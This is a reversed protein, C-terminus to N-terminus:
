PNHLLHNSLCPIRIWLPAAEWGLSRRVLYLGGFSLLSLATIIAIYATGAHLASVWRDTPVDSLGTWTDVVRDLANRLFAGPHGVIYTLAERQKMQMFKPKRGLQVLQQMGEVDSGPHHTPSWNRKVDPNNGLWLELGFNDKIPVLKGFAAYNRATWPALCLLFFFIAVTAQRPWPWHDRWRHQAVWFLLFPLLIGVAPNMLVAIGWLLGYGAWALTSFQAPLELTWYILLALFFAAFSPDWLWELPFIVATPLFVWLWSSLMAAEHGAIKKAIGYIPWCTLASAFCNLIQCLIIATFDNHRSIRLALSIIWPYAPAVWATPGHMGALPSSFGHGNALSIAVNWAEHSTPFFLLEHADGDRHVLWLLFIRLLLAALVPLTPFPRARGTDNKLREPKM